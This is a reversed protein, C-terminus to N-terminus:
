EHRERIGGKSPTPKNTIGAPTPSVNLQVNSGSYNILGGKVNEITTQFTYITNTSVVPTSTIFLSFYGDRKVPLDYTSNNSVFSIQGSNDLINWNDTYYEYNPDNIDTINNGIIYSFNSLSYSFGSPMTITVRKINYNNDTACVNNVRNNLTFKLYYSKVGSLVFDPSIDLSYERVYRMPTNYTPTQRTGVPPTNKTGIAYGSFYFNSDFAGTIQYTYTFSASSGSNLTAVSAPTPGSLKVLTATGSPTLTPTVNTLSFVNNNTVTMTVNITEGSLPCEPSYSISATFRGIYVTNSNVSIGSTNSAGNRVNCSFYVSGEDTTLTTYNYVLTGTQLFGLTGIVPNSTTSPNFGGTSTESPPNPNATINTQTASSVNQVTITLTFPDGSVLLDPSAVISQIKLGRRNWSVGLNNLTTRNSSAYVVRVSSLNESMIDNTSPQVTLSIIFDRYNNATFYYSSNNADFTIRNRVSDVNSVTWGSPAINGTTNVKMGAPFTFRVQRIGDNIDAGTNTNTVRLTMAVTDRMYFDVTAGALNAVTFSRAAYSTTSSLFIIFLVIFLKKM